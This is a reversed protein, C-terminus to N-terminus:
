ILLNNLLLDALQSNSLISLDVGDLTDIEQAQALSLLGERSLRDSALVESSSRDSLLGESMVQEDTLMSM